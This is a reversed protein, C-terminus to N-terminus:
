LLEEQLKQMEKEAKYYRTFAANYNEKRDPPYSNDSKTKRLANLYRKKLFGPTLKNKLTMKNMNKTNVGFVNLFDRVSKRINAKGQSNKKNYNSEMLKIVNSIPQSYNKQYQVQKTKANKLTANLKMYQNYKAQKNSNLSSRNM